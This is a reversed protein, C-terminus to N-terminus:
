KGCIYLEFCPGFYFIPTKLFFVVRQSKPAGLTTRTEIRSWLLRHDPEARSLVARSSETGGRISNSFQVADEQPRSRTTVTRRYSSRVWVLPLRKESSLVVNSLRSRLKHQPRGDTTGSDDQPRETPQIQHRELRCSPWLFVIILRIEPEAAVRLAVLGRCYHPTM